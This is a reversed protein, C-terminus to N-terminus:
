IPQKYQMAMKFSGEKKEIKPNSKSASKAFTNALVEKAYKIRKSMESEKSDLANKISMLNGVGKKNIYYLKKLEPIIVVQTNDTFILQLIKNSLRFVYAHSAKMWKKVYISYENFDEGSVKQEENTEMYQNLFGVKSVLQKPYKTLSFLHSSEKGGAELNKEIYIFM